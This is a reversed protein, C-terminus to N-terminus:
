ALVGADGGACGRAAASVSLKELLAVQWVTLIEMDYPSSKSSDAWM